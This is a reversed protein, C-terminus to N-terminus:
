LSAHHIRPAAVGAGTTRCQSRRTPPIVPRRNGSMCSCNAESIVAAMGCFMGGDGEKVGCVVGSGEVRVAGESVCSREWSNCSSCRISESCIGAACSVGLGGSRGASTLTGYWVGSCGHPSSGRAFALRMAVCMEHLKTASRSGCHGRRM